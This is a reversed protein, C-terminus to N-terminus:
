APLKVVGAIRMVNNPSNTGEFNLHYVRIEGTPAAAGGYLAPILVHFAERITTMPGSYLVTQCNAPPIEEVQYGEPAAHTKEVAIGMKVDLVAGPDGTMTPYIFVVPGRAQINAAKMAAFLKPVEEGAIQSITKLTVQKDAYLFNFGIMDLRRVPGVSGDSGRKFPNRRWFGVLELVVVEGCAFVTALLLLGRWPMPHYHKWHYIVALWENLRWKMVCLTIIAIIPVYLISFWRTRVVSGGGWCYGGVITLGIGLVLLVGISAFDRARWAFIIWPGVGSLVIAAIL